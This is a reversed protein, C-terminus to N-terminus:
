IEVHSNKIKWTAAFHNKRLIMENKRLKMQNKRLKM